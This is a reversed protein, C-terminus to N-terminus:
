FSSKVPHQRGVHQANREPAFQARVHTSRVAAMRQGRVRGRLGRGTGGEQAALVSVM